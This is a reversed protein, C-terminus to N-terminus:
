PNNIATKKFIDRVNVFGGSGCIQYIVILQTGKKILKQVDSHTANPLAKYVANGDIRFIGYWEKPASKKARFGVIMDSAGEYVVEDVLVDAIRQDCNDGPKTYPEEIGVLGNVGTIKAHDNFQYVIAPEAKANM